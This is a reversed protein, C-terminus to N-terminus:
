ARAPGRFVENVHWDVVEDAPYYKERQPTHIQDGHRSRLRSLHPDSGHVSESVLLHLSDSIHLAGKDFMKHHRVCLAIGNNVEDPGGHNHWQIHAAELGLSTNELKLDFGCVACQYSYARLVDPRFDPDRSQHLTSPLTLSLGVANCLETHFSPQFHERLLLRVIDYRLSPSEKLVTWVADTFGGHVDHELLESKLPDTNSERRTLPADNRVTWIGDNQLRWFPYEPHHRKRSPGFEILLRRLDDDVDRFSIWRTDKELKGIAYLILLPKHPARKEGRKWVNLDQIRSRLSSSGEIHDQSSM